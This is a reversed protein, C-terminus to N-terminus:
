FRRELQWPLLGLKSRAPRSGQSKLKGCASAKFGVIQPSSGHESITETGSICFLVPKWLRNFADSATATVYDPWAGVFPPRKWFSHPM